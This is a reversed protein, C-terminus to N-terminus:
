CERLTRAARTEPKGDPGARFKDFAAVAAAFRAPDDISTVIDDRKDEYQSFIDRACVAIRASKQQNALTASGRYELVFTFASLLLLLAMGVLFIYIVTFKRPTRISKM